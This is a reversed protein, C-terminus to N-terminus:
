SCRSNVGGNMENASGSAASMSSSSIMFTSTGFIMWVEVPGDICVDGNRGSFSRKQDIQLSAPM